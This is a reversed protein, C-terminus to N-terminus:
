RNGLRGSQHIAVGELMLGQAGTPVIRGLVELPRETNVPAAQDFVVNVQGEMTRYTDYGVLLDFTTVNGVTNVNAAMGRWIIHVDRYLLPDAIADSYAVNDGHKFTDFGPIEMYSLLLRAKNKVNESANSELIRNLDIKAKEDRYAAFLSQAREYTSLVESRTLVYRYVGATQVPQNRDDANLQYETLLHREGKKAFPNPIAKANILIGLCLVALACIIAACAIVTNAGFGAFPVPPYLAKIKGSENVASFDDNRAFGRIMNLAKKAIRNNKDLEQVDLYYDVTKEIEGRRLYLVALGLLPLPNRTKIEHAHRFHDLAGSYDGLRLGCVGLLYSYHFSGRYRYEEPELIKVAEEYKGARACRSAKGLVPDLKM